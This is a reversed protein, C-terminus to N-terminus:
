LPLSLHYSWWGKGTASFLSTLIVQSMVIKVSLRIFCFRGSIVTTCLSVCSHIIIPMAAGASWFIRVVPYSFYWFRARSILLIRLALLTVTNGMTVPASRVIEPYVFAPFPLNLRGSIKPLACNDAMRPVAWIKLFTDHTEAAPNSSLIWLFLVPSSLVM